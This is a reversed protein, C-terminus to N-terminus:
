QVTHLTCDLMSVIKLALAISSNTISSKRLPLFYLFFIFSFTWLSVYSVSVIKATFGIVGTPVIWLNKVTIGMLRWENEASIGM